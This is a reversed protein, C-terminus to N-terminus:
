LLSVIEEARLTPFAGTVSIASTTDGPYGNLETTSLSVAQAAYTVVISKLYVARKASNQTISVVIEGSATDNLTYETASTTLSKQSDFANGGVTVNLKASTGSAGSANVVIKTITGDIDDTTARLYSVYASGTGYHIGKTNDFTSEAADSTITWVADDDATGSGGCEDTFVLSSTSATAGTEIAVSASIANALAGVLLSFSAFVLGIWTLLRFRGKM